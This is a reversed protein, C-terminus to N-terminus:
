LWFRVGANLPFCAPVFRLSYEEDDRDYYVGVSPNWVSHAYFELCRNEFCFVNLGMGLRAGTEAFSKNEVKGSFSMGWLAFWNLRSNIKKYIWWNDLVLDISKDKLNYSVAIGWPSFESRLNFGVDADASPTFKAGGQIGIGTKAFLFSPFFLVLALVFIRKM